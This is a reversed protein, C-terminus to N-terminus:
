GKERAEPPIEENNDGFSGGLNSGTPSLSVPLLPFHSNHTQIVGILWAWFGCWHLIAGERIGNLLGHRGGSPGRFSAPGEPVEVEVKGDFV